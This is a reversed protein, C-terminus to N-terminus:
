NLYTKAVADKERALFQKFTTLGGLLRKLENLDTYDSAYRLSPESAIVLGSGGAKALAQAQAVEEETMHVAKISRGDGIAESLQDMADQVHLDESVVGMKRGQFTAPDKFAAAALRGIDVHDVLGLLSEKTLATTWTGQKTETYGTQIKPEVFNAMFLGPRIVTWQEFNDIVIQEMRKKTHLHTEFLPSLTVPPKSGEEVMFCGLTTSAVAQRVGAEKALRTILATQRPIMEFDSLNPFLCLFLKDCGKLGERLAAEDNWNGTTLHVGASSLAQASSSQPDRTLARVNWGFKRLEYCLSSGQSGTASTVFVTPTNAM